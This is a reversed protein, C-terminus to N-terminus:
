RSLSGSDPYLRNRAQFARSFVNLRHARLFRVVESRCQVQLRCDELSIAQTREGRDSSRALAGLALASRQQGANRYRVGSWSHLSMPIQLVLLTIAACALMVPMVPRRAPVAPQAGERRAPLQSVGMMLLAVISWQYIIVYRPQWLYTIGHASVRAVVIGAVLGYFVLMLGTAV